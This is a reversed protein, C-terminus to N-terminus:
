CQRTAGPGGGKGNGTRRNRERRGIVPPVRPTEGGVPNPKAGRIRTQELDEEVEPLVRGLWFGRSSAFSFVNPWRWIRRKSGKYPSLALTILADRNAGEPLIRLLSRIGERIAEGYEAWM